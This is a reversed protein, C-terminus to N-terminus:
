KSNKKLFFINAKPSGHAVTTAEHSVTVFDASRWSSTTARQGLVPMWWAKIPSRVVEVTSRTKATDNLLSERVKEKMAAKLSRSIQKGSTKESRSKVGKWELDWMAGSFFFYFAVFRGDAGRAATVSWSFNTAGKDLRNCLSWNSYQFTKSPRM